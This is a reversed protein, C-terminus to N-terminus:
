PQGRMSKGGPLKFISEQTALFPETSSENQAADEDEYEEEKEAARATCSMMSAVFYLVTASIVCKAGWSMSCSTQFQLKNWPSSPNNLVEMMDNNRCANSDLFLLSLGQFISALMLGPGVISKAADPRACAAVINIIVFIIGFIFALVSFARASKWAPDVQVYSPYQTCSKYVM